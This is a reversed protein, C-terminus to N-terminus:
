QSLKKIDDPVLVVQVKPQIGKETMVNLLESDSIGMAKALGSLSLCDPQFEAREMPMQTSVAKQLRHYAEQFAALHEEPFPSNESPTFGAPLVAMGLPYVEYDGIMEAAAHVLEPLTCGLREAVQGYTTGRVPEPAPIHEVNLLSHSQVLRNYADIITQKSLILGSTGGSTDVGQIRLSEEIAANASEHTVKDGLLNVIGAAGFPPFDALRILEDGPLLVQSQTFFVERREPIVQRVWVDILDGVQANFRGTMQTSHLMGSLDPESLRILAFNPAGTSAKVRVYEVKCTVKQGIALGLYPEIPLSARDKPITASPASSLIPTSQAEAGLRDPLPSILPSTQGIRSLQPERANLIFTDSTVLETLQAINLEGSESFVSHAGAIAKISFYVGNAKGISTPGQLGLFTNIREVSHEHVVAVYVAPTLLREISQLQATTLSDQHLILVPQRRQKKGYVCPTCIALLREIEAETECWRVGAYYFEKPVGLLNLIRRWDFAVSAVDELRDIQKARTQASIKLLSESIREAQVFVTSHPRGPRALKLLLGDRHADPRAYDFAGTILAMVDDAPMSNSLVVCTEVEIVEPIGAQSGAAPGFWDFVEPETTDGPSPKSPSNEDTIGEAKGTECDFWPQKPLPSFVEPPNRGSKLCNDQILQKLEMRAERDGHVLFIGKTLEARELKDGLVYRIISAGDAHGSYFESVSEFGCKIEDGPIAKAQRGSKQDDPLKIAFRAREAKALPALQRLIGGPSRPPVYGCLVFTAEEKHLYADMLDLVYGGQTMGTGCIIITPANIEAAPKGWLIQTRIADHQEDIRTITSERDHPILQDLVGVLDDGSDYAKKFLLSLINLFCQEGTMEDFFFDRYAQAYNYSLGSPICIVPTVSKSLGIEARDYHLAYFVDILLDLSRQLSFAPIIVLPPVDHRFAKALMECIREHRRRGSQSDKHRSRNGYTSEAVVYDSAADHVRREGHLSLTEEIHEVPGIDGTFLVSASKGAQSASIRFACAGLLHSTPEAEIYLDNELCEKSGPQVYKASKLGEIAQDLAERNPVERGQRREIKYGDELAIESLKATERTCFIQGRFGAQFWRPLHSIHDGHAHTLIIGSLKEPMCDRPLNRPHAPQEDDDEGQAAGCDVAYINGSAKVKFFHCSGTVTDLAGHFKLLLPM